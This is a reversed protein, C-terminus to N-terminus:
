AGGEGIMREIERQYDNWEEQTWGEATVVTPEVIEPTSSVSVLRLPMLVIGIATAILTFFSSGM